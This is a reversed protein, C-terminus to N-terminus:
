EALNGSSEAVCLFFVESLLLPAVSSHFLSRRAWFKETTKLSAPMQDYLHDSAMVEVVEIEGRKFIEDGFLTHGLPQNGIALIKPFRDILKKPFVSRAFIVPEHTILVVERVWCPSWDTAGVFLSEGEDKWPIQWGEKQVLVQMKVGSAKELAQTMSGTNSLWSHWVDPIVPNGSLKKWAPTKM